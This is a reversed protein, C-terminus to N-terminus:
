HAPNLTCVFRRVVDGVSIQGAAVAAHIQTANTFQTPSITLWTVPRVEWRGGAFGPEGPAAEAVSFLGNGLQYITEFKGQDPLNTPTAITHFLRDSAYINGGPPGIGMDQASAIQALALLAAAAIFGSKFSM